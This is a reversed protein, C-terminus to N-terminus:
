RRLNLKRTGKIIEGIGDKKSKGRVLSINATNRKPAPSSEPSTFDKDDVNVTQTRRIVPQNDDKLDKLVSVSRRVRPTAQKEPKFLFSRRKKLPKAVPEPTTMRPEVTPQISTRKPENLVNEKTSDDTSSHKEKTTSIEEDSLTRKIPTALLSVGHSKRRLDKLPYSM